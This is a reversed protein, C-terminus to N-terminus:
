STTRYADDPGPGTTGELLQGILDAEWSGPRNETVHWSGGLEWSLHACGRAIFEAVDEGEAHASRLAGLLQWDRGSAPIPRGPLARRAQAAEALEESLQDLVRATTDDGPLQRALQAADVSVSWVTERLTAAPDPAPTAAPPSPRNQM